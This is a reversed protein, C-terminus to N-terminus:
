DPKKSLHHEMWKIAYNNLHAADFLYSIANGVKEPSIKSEAIYQHMLELFYDGKYWDTIGKSTDFEELEVWETQGGNTFMPVAYKVIQKGSINARDESHHLLTVKNLPAGILAVKGNLAILKALPSHIGYGYKLSHNQTLYSAHKGVASFSGDPHQSRKAGPWKRLMEALISWEVVARATEPDFPPCERLYATKKEPSWGEMTYPSDEWGTYMMLTGEKGLLELLARIIIEPGGVLWGMSKVSVHLMVALGSSIGLESFYAKLQSKTILRESPSTM